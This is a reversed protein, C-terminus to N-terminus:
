RVSEYHRYRHKGWQSLVWMRVWFLFPSLIGRREYRRMSTTAQATAGYYYRGYRLARRMFDRNERCHLQEDFGRSQQYVKKWVVIVGSSGQYLGYRHLMNKWGYLLRYIFQNNEPVAYLTGVSYRANFTEKITALTSPALTTDADLFVLIEGRAHRAGKNLAASIGKRRTVLVNKTYARARQATRDTCANAVVIIEYPPQTQLKLALLTKTIYQEENHAPIIVSIHPNM